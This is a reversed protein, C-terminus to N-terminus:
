RACRFGRDPIRTDPDSDRWTNSLRYGADGATGKWGSGRQILRSPDQSEQNVCDVCPVPLSGPLDLVIEFVNGALDLHGWRGAGATRSGVAAASTTDYVAHWPHLATSEPPNSWPFHRQQDGGAAAFNWEAETPLRGQDWACFAIADGRLVCSIPHFEKDEPTDTWTGDPCALAARLLDRPGAPLADTYNRFRGVTVEFRDL